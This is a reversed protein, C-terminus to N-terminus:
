RLAVRGQKARGQVYWEKIDRKRRNAKRVEHPGVKAKM